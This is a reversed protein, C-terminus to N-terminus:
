PWKRVQAMLIQPYPIKFLNGSGIIELTAQKQSVSIVKGESTRMVRAYVIIANYGIYRKLESPEIMEYDTMKLKGGYKETM